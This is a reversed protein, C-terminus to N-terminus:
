SFDCHDQGVPENRITPLMDILFPESSPDLDQKTEKPIDVSLSVLM